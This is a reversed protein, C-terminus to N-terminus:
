IGLLLYCLAYTYTHTLFANTGHPVNPTHTDPM